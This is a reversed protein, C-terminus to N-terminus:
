WPNTSKLGADMVRAVDNWGKVKENMETDYSESLKNAEFKEAKRM